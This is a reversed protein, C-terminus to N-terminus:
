KAPVYVTDTIHFIGNSAEKNELLIRAGQVKTIGKTTVLDAEGLTKLKSNHKFKSLDAMTYKGPIIHRKLVATLAKKDAQLAGWRSKGMHIFASNSPIFVTYPGKGQLTASLGTAKLADLFFRTQSYHSATQVIDEARASPAALALSLLALLVTTHKMIGVNYEWRAPSVSPGHGRQM